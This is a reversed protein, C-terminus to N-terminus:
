MGNEKKERYKKAAYASGAGLVAGGLAKHLYSDGTANNIGAQQDKLEHVLSQDKNFRSAFEDGSMNKFRAQMTAHYKDYDNDSTADANFQYENNLVPKGDDLDVYPNKSAIKQLEAQHAAKDMFPHMDETKGGLYSSWGTKDSAHLWNDRTDTFTDKDILEKNMMSERADNNMWDKLDAPRSKALDAAGGGFYNYALGAATGGLGASLVPNQKIFNGTKELFNEELIRKKFGM